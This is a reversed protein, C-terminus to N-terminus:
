DGCPTLCMLKNVTTGDQGQPTHNRANICESDKRQKHFFFVVGFFLFVVTCENFMRAWVQQASPLDDASHCWGLM